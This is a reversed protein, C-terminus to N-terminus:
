SRESPMLHHWETQPRKLNQIMSDWQKEAIESDPEIGLRVSGIEENAGLMDYDKVLILLDVLPMENAPVRLSFAHNYYPNLTSKQVDTKDKFVVKGKIRVVVKVYPDTKGYNPTKLQKCEMITVSLKTNIHNYRLTVCIEGLPDDLSPNYSTMPVVGPGLRFNEDFLEVVADGIPMDRLFKHHQVLRFLIQSEILTEISCKFTFAQNFNPSLEHHVIETQFSKKSGPKLTVKLYVAFEKLDIKESKKQSISIEKVQIIEIKLEKELYNYHIVYHVEGAQRKRSKGSKAFNEQLANRLRRKKIYRRM